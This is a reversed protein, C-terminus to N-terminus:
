TKTIDEEMRTKGGFKQICEAGGEHTGYARGM